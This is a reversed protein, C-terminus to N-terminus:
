VFLRRRGYEAKIRQMVGFAAPALQISQDLNQLNLTFGSKELDILERCILVTAEKIAGPVAPWGFKATVQVARRQEPWRGLVGNSPVIDLYRYPMPEPGLAANDPGIFFHTNLTLTENADAYDFDADLDVKVATLEAVDDVYLRTGGLGDFHRIVASADQTFFRECEKDLQRSVALLLAGLLADDMISSKDVRQRYEQATAYASDVAM